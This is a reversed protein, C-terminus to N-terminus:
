CVEFLLAKVLEEPGVGGRKGSSVRVRLRSGIFELLAAWSSCRIAAGGRLKAIRFDSLPRWRHATISRCRHPVPPPASPYLEHCSAM